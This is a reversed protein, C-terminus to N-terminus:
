SGADDREIAKHFHQVPVLVLLFVFASPSLRAIVFLTQSLDIPALVKKCINPVFNLNLASEM